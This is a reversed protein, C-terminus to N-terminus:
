DIISFTNNSFKIILSVQINVNCNRYMIGLVYRLNRNINIIIWFSEKFTWPKNRHVAVFVVIEPYCKVSLFDALDNGERSRPKFYYLLPIDTQM